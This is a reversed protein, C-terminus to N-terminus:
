VNSAGSKNKSKRNLLSTLANKIENEEKLAFAIRDSLESLLIRISKAAELCEDDPLEHIGESLVDHLITLPNHGKIKLSDPVAGKAIDVSKSFQSEEQARKITERADTSGESAILVRLIEGLLRNKQNEVVRRYYAFAAIGMGQTEAKIGKIFLNRDPGAFGVVKPPIRLRYEPFEGLKIALVDKSESTSAFVVSFYKFTKQCHRCRYKLHVAVLDEYHINVQKNMCDHFHIDGCSDTQCFLEITPLVLQFNSAGKYEYVGKVNFPINPPTEELFNIFNIEPYKEQEEVGQIKQDM